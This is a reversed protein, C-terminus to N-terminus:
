KTGDKQAFREAAVLLMPDVFFAKGVFYFGLAINLADENKAFNAGRLLSLGGLLCFAFSM